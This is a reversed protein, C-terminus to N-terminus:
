GKKYRWDFGFASRINGKACNIIDSSRKESGMAIAAAKISEYEAVFEGNKTYQYVRKTGRGILDPRAGKHGKPVFENDKKEVEYVFGDIVNTKQLVHRNFGNERAADSVSEYRAVENGSSDRKIVYKQHRKPKHEELSFPEGKFRWVFGYATKTNHFCCATICSNKYLGFEEEAHKLSQFERVREGKTTYQVVAKTDDSHEEHFKVLSAVKKDVATGYTNNYQYTCWELNEVINNDRSEDKHNVCPLRDPNPIFAEAVLRHVSNTKAVGDKSLNVSPYGTQSSIRVNLMKGRRSVTRGLSDTYCRTLARIRGQTSVQYIGEYDKIDKWREEMEKNNKNRCHLSVFYM